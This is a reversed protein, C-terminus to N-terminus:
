KNLEKDDYVVGFGLLEVANGDIIVMFQIERFEPIQEGTITNRNIIVRNKFDRNVEPETMGDYIKIWGADSNNINDPTRYFIEISNLGAENGIALYVNEVKKDAWPKGDNIIQTIFGSETDKTTDMMYVGENNSLFFGGQSLGFSEMEVMDTLTDPSTAEFIFNGESSVSFIGCMAGEDSGRENRNSQMHLRGGFYLRDNQVITKRTIYNITGLGDVPTIDSDIPSNKVRLTLLETTYSQPYVDFSANIRKISFESYPAVDTHTLGPSMIAVLQGKLIDLSQVVGLGTPIFTDLSKRANLERDLELNMLYVKSHGDDEITAFALKGGVACAATINYPMTLLNEYDIYEKSAGLPKSMVRMTEPGIIGDVVLPVLGGQVWEGTATYNGQFAKVSTELITGFVGDIAGGYYPLGTNDNILAQLLGQVKKIESIPYGVEVGGILYKGPNGNVDGVIMYQTIPQFESLLNDTIDRALLAGHLDKPATVFAHISRGSFVYVWNNAAEVMFTNSHSVDVNNLVSFQPGSGAPPLSPTGFRDVWIKGGLGKYVNANNYIIPLTGTDVYWPTLVSSTPHRQLNYETSQNSTAFAFMRLNFISPNISLGPISTSVGYPNVGDPLVMAEVLAVHPESSLKDWGYYQTAGSVTTKLNWIRSLKPTDFLARPNDTIGVSFNNYQVSKIAM